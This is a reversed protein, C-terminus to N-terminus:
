EVTIDGSVTQLHFKVSPEGRYSLRNTADGSVTKTWVNASISSDSVNIEVDGSTTKVDM